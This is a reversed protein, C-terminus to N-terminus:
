DLIQSYDEIMQWVQQVPIPKIFAANCGAEMCMQENTVSTIAIIPLTLGEARITQVLDLGTMQGALEVDVLMLHPDDKMFNHLADEATAYTLLSHNGSSTIREILSRNPINDEVYMIRM